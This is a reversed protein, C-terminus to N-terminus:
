TVDEGEEIYTRDIDYSMIKEMYKGEEVDFWKKVQALVHKGDVVM